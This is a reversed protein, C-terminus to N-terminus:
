RNLIAYYGGDRYADAEGAPLTLKDREITLEFAEAAWEVMRENERPEISCTSYLLKGRKSLLPLSEAIIRRQLRELSDLHRPTYRYRAEPRRALVGTNSCPVDLLLLDARGTHPSLAEPEVVSVMAHDAFTRRLEAFRPADTDSAVIRSKPHAQALQRTKTGLGACYDVILEFRMGRTAKVPRAATPDQVWCDGASGIKEALGGGHWPKIGEPGHLYTVPEVHSHGLLEIAHDLGFTEVWAAVLRRDHSTALSLYRVPDKAKILAAKALQIAGGRWPVLNNAPGWGGDARRELVMDAARRLVANTMKAAGERLRHRAQQVATDVVAHAPVRDMFLLQAAGVVLVARLEPEVDPQSLCTNLVREITLWRGVSVRYISEALRADREDLKATDVAIPRTPGGRVLKVVADVAADRAPSVSKSQSISKAM